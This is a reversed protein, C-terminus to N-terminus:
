IGATTMATQTRAVIANMAADGLHVQGNTQDYLLSQCVVRASIDRSDQVTPSTALANIVPVPDFTVIGQSAIYDRHAELALTQSSVVGDASPGCNVSPLIVLRQKGVAAVVADVFANNQAVNYNGDASGNWIVVTFGQAILAKYTEIRAQIDAIPAGGVASNIVVRGTAIRLKQNFIVGYAGAMYSDGETWIRNSISRSSLFQLYQPSSLEPLVAMIGNQGDWPFLGGSAQGIRVRGAGTVVLASSNSIPGSGNLSSRLVDLGNAGMSIAITFSGALGPQGTSPQQRQATNNNYHEVKILGDTDLYATVRDREGDADLQLAVKKTASSAPAVGTFLLTAAAHVWGNFPKVEVVDPNDFYAAGSGVGSQNRYGVYMDQGGGAFLMENTADSAGFVQLGVQASTLGTTQSAALTINGVSTGRRGKSRYRFAKQRSDGNIKQYANAVSGASTMELEGSVSAVTANSVGIGAVTDFTSNPVLNTQGSQVYPGITRVNGSKVGGVATLFSAEDPYTLGNYWGKDTGYNFAVTAPVGSQTSPVWAPVGFGPSVAATSGGANTATVRFTIQPGVDQSTQVYTLSTAGIIPVGGRLWQYAYTIPAEGSFMGPSATLTEGAAIRGTIEPPITSVPAAVPSVPEIKWGLGSRSSLKFIKSAGSPMSASAMWAKYFRTFLFVDRAM